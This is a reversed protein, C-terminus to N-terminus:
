SYLTFLHCNLRQWQNWWYPDLHNEKEPHDIKELMWEMRELGPKIGVILRSEIWQIVEEYTHFM